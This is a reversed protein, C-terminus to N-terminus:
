RSFYPCVEGPEVRAITRGSVRGVVRLSSGAQPPAEGSPLGYFRQWAVHNLFMVRRPVVEVQPQLSITYEKDKHKDNPYLTQVVGLPASSPKTHEATRHSSLFRGEAGESAGVALLSRRLGHSAAYPATPPTRWPRAIAPLRPVSPSM